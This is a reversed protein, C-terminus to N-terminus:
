FIRVIDKWTIFLILAILLVFGALHIVNEIREPVKRGTVLEVLVFVLRGGDLGPFPFLNILGLNLNIIALFSLFSWLGGRAAQGALSAIGVPGTIEVESQNTLLMYIGKIWEGSMRFIYAFSNTFAGVISFNRFSPRIGLLPTGYKEHVPISVDLSIRRDGRQVTFSVPGETAEEKILQSMENWQSVKEGNIEVIVDGPQIGSSQAPLGDMLEGVKTSELNMIGHGYLFVATILIALIINSLAGNFLIFFRALAGKDSFAGGKVIKEGPKEEDMGALRVFGGVPFIRASWLVGDSAKKQWFVPGMGFAFEHVQVGAIRATKYHGYEHSIVCIAIVIVFSLLSVM